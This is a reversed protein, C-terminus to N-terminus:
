THIPHSPRTPTSPAVHVGTFALGKMEGPTELRGRGQGWHKICPAWGGTQGLSSLKEREARHKEETGQQGTEMKWDTIHPRSPAPNSAQIILIGPIDSNHCRGNREAAEGQSTTPAKTSLLPPSKPYLPISPGFTFVVCSCSLSSRLSHAGSAFPQSLTSTWGPQPPVSLTLTSLSPGICQRTPLALM